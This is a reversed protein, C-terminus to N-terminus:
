PKIPFSTGLYHILSGGIRLFLMSVDPEDTGAAHADSAERFAHLKTLMQGPGSEFWGLSRASKILDPLSSGKAGGLRLLEEVAGSVATIAGGHDDHQYRDWAKRYLNNIAAFRPDRLLQLTPVVIEQHLHESTISMFRNGELILPIRFNRLRENLRPWLSADVGSAVDLAHEFASLRQNFSVWSGHTPGTNYIGREIIQKYVDAPASSWDRRGLSWALEDAWESWLDRDREDAIWAHTAQLLISWLEPVGEPDDYVDLLGEDVLARLREAEAATPRRQKGGHFTQFETM